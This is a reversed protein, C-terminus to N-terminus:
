GGQASHSSRPALRGRRSFPVQAVKMRGMRRSSGGTVGAPRAPVPGAALARKSDSCYRQAGRWYLSPLM